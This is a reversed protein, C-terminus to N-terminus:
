RSDSRLTYMLWRCLRHNACCQCMFLALLMYAAVAVAVAVAVAAAVHSLIRMSRTAPECVCPLLLLQYAVVAALLKEVSLVCVSYCCSEHVSVCMPMLLQQANADVAVCCVSYVDCVAYSLCYVSACACSMERCRVVLPVALRMNACTTKNQETISQTTTTTNCGQCLGDHVLLLLYSTISANTFTELLICHSISSLQLKISCQDHVDYVVHVVVAAETV